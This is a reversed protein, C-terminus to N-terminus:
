HTSGGGSFNCLISIDKKAVSQNGLEDFVTLKVTYIGHMSYTTDPQLVTTRFSKGFEWLCHKFGTSENLFRINQQEFINNTDRVSISFKAQLPLSAPYNEM